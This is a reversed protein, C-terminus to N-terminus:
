SGGFVFHDFWGGTGGWDGLRALGVFKWWMGFACVIAIYRDPAQVLGGAFDVGIM